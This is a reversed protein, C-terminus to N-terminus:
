RDLLEAYLDHALPIGWGVDIFRKCCAMIDRPSWVRAQANGIEYQSGDIFSDIYSVSLIM